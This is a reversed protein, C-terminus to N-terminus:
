YLSWFFLLFGIKFGNEFYHDYFVTLGIRIPDYSEAWMGLYGSIYPSKISNDFIIQDSLIGGALGGGLGIYINELMLGSIGGIKYNLFSNGLSISLSADGMLIFPYNKGLYFGGQLGCTFIDYGFTNGGSLLGGVTIGTAFGGFKDASPSLPVPKTTAEQEYVRKDLEGIEIKMYGSANLIRAQIGNVATISITLSPTLDKAKVNLFKVTGLVNNPITVIKNSSSFKITDTNLTISGSGITKKNENLLSVEVKCGFTQKGNFLVTGATKPTIEQLPWNSFGWQYRRETKELGELLMNLANFGAKSPNLAINMGLNATSKAFDTEGIQILSPDFIIEFPPHDNFFKVTEKFVELWRDRVQIDNVIRQSITGGSISTSLTNLRSLAELQSPDFTIAQVFNLLAQVEAGGAQATIGRALGTEAQVTSAKGDLLAQKGAATLQIGLQELLEATAENLIAGYGEFQASTGDKMFSAKRVGTSAETVSLQLSYRNGSLRQVTGFLFYQANTLNGINVFDKDSFRGSAALNQEAIIKNLNQRDILNIASFKNINNNLLGQIYLPLYVPVDGQVEPALVALRINNGGNGTYMPGSPIVERQGVSGRATISLGNDTSGNVTSSERQGKAMGTLACFIFIINFFLLTTLKRIKM